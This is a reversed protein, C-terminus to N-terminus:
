MVEQYAELVSEMNADVSYKPVSKRANGGLKKLLAADSLARKLTRSLDAADGPRFLLGNYGDQVVEPIGGIASGIVPTSAEFAEISVRGFPEYWISPVVMLNARAYLERLAKGQAVYGHYSIRSDQTAHTKVEQELPGRGVIHLRLNPGELASFAELLVRIGKLLSIEGVFLVDLTRYDKVEPNDSVKLCSPIIFQRAKSFFGYQLHSDLVFRTEATVARANRTFHRMLRLYPADAAGLKQMIRGRRILNGWPSLLEYNHLTHVHPLNLSNAASIVAPSLGAICHTHVIDPRERKLVSRMVAYSHSNWIDVLHWLSRLWLPKRRFSSGYFFNLPFFRMVRIGDIEEEQISLSSPGSYPRTTLFIVEHERGIREALDHTYTETGGIVFPDFYSNVMCIKM